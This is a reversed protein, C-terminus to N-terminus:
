STGRIYGIASVAGDGRAILPVGQRVYEITVTEPSGIADIMPKVHTAHVGFRDAVDRVEADLEEVIVDKAAASADPWSEVKFGDDSIDFRVVKSNVTGDKSLVSALAVADILQESAVTVSGTPEFAMLPGWVQPYEAGLRSTRLRVTGAVLELGRDDALVTVQEHGDGIAQVASVPLLTEFKFPHEWAAIRLNDNAIAGRESISIGCLPGASDKTAAFPMLSRIRAWQEGTLVAAEAAVDPRRPFGDSVVASLHMKSRGCRFEVGEASAEMQIEGANAKAVYAAFPKHQILVEGDGDALMGTEVSAEIGVDGNDALLTLGGDFRLMVHPRQNSVAPNVASLAAELTSTAVRAKM